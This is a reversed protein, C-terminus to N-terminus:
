EGIDIVDDNIIASSNVVSGRVRLADILTNINLNSSQNTLNWRIFVPATVNKIGNRLLVNGYGLADPLGFPNPLITQVAGYFDMTSTESIFYTGFNTLSNNPFTALSSSLIGNNDLIFAGTGTTSNISNALLDLQSNNIVLLSDLQQGAVNLTVVHNLGIEVNDKDDLSTAYPIDDVQPCVPPLHTSNFTWTTNLNWNGTAVSYFRRPSKEGIYFDGLGAWKTAGASLEVSALGVNWNLDVGNRESWLPVEAPVSMRRVVANATNVTALETPPFELNVNATRGGMSFIGGTVPNLSWYRPVSHLPDMRNGSNPSYPVPNLNIGDVAGSTGGVGIMTVVAPTYSTGNGIEYTYSGADTPIVKQLYGDVYGTGTRSVNGGNQIIVKRDANRVNIISASSLNMTYSVYVQATPSATNKTVYVYGGALDLDYYNVGDTNEIALTHNSPGNFIFNKTLPNTRTLNQLVM